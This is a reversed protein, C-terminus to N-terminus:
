KIELTKLYAETIQRSLSEVDRQPKRPLANSIKLFQGVADIVPRVTKGYVSSAPVNNKNAELIPEGAVLGSKLASGIGEFTIPFVMGGADGVLLGNDRCPVFSGDVLAEHLLAIACGDKWLPKM